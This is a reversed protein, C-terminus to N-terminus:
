PGDAAEAQLFRTTFATSPDFTAPYLGVASMEAVFQRWRAESMQGIDRADGGAPVVISNDRMKEIAQAIIADTMEPNDAKILANAPAPDGGLYSEWGKISARVFARVVEPREDIAEDHALVFAAYGPYGEDSLMFVQPKIGAQSEIMFPESTIYGQQVANRDSIFPALNFTYKRIQDDTYGFKAKLWPWFSGITADAVMIPKGKLDALSRVDARPHTLIVQPDKQFTAMVAKAPVGAIAMNVVLFQNSGLGFDIAKAGLLQPINVSPGGMRIRVDLGEAEYFGLAKAQYFGGHEAQATWDTAFTVETLAAPSAEEEGVPAPGVSRSFDLGIGIALAALAAIGLGAWLWNREM